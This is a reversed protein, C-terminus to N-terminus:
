PEQFWVTLRPRLEPNAYSSSPFAPGSTGFDEQGDTLKLLVGDNPQDGTQWAGVLDTVDLVFWGPSAFPPLESTAAVPGFAVERDAFWRPTFIPHADIEYSRGDCPGIRRFPRVCITDYWLSLEATVVLAGPPISALSFRLAGRLVKDDVGGVGLRDSEDPYCREDWDYGSDCWFTLAVDEVPHLTVDQVGAAHAIGALLLAAILALM